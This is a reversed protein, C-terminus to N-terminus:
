IEGDAVTIRFKCVVVNEELKGEEFIYERINSNSTKYLKCLQEQM